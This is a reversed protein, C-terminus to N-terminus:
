GNIEEKVFDWCILTGNFDYNLNVANDSDVCYLGNKSIINLNKIMKKDVLSKMSPLGLGRYILRTESRNKELVTSRILESDSSFFYEPIKKKITTPIGRGNDLLAFHIIDCSKEPLAMLWWRKNKRGTYAHERVNNMAEMITTYVAKTMQNRKINLKDRVFKVVSGAEEPDVLEDSRISLIEESDNHNYSSNVYKYFGSDLFVQRCYPDLPANGKINVNKNHTESNYLFAIICLITDPTLYKVSKLDIKISRGHWSNDDLKKLFDMTENFNNLLSFIEPANLYLGNFIRKDSIKIKNSFRGHSYKRNQREKIAKKSRKQNFRIYKEDLYIKKM